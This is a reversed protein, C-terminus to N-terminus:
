FYLNAVKIAPRFIWVKVGLLGYITHASKCAYDLDASITHLPVRGSRVWEARAIEAGNLRGSIQLRLGRVKGLNQAREQAIRLVRRFPIRKEVESVVFGAICQADSESCILQRVFVQIDLKENKCVDLDELLVFYKLRFKQCKQKLELRLKELFQGESGVLSSLQSSSIRIRIRKGRRDIEIESINCNKRTQSVYNRLFYDEKVFFAYKSKQAYWNSRSSQTIGLRFGIPHTKQGMFFFLRKTKKDLKTHGRFTRTPAFEGLKHGVIQDTIFVALHERGNYVSITHGIIIPV